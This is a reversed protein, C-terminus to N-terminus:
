ESNQYSVPDELGNILFGMKRMYCPGCKGCHNNNGEYCSWTYKLPAGIEVGIKVIEHKMLNGVPMEITVRKQYNTSYPLVENLKKVFIMENDPYAGAEELNNGLSVVNFGHAEAIGVAISLFILNRAPVWEHAFEAGKEGEGVHMIESNKEILTSHGIVTKFIDTDVTIIRCNLNNAIQKVSESEKKEARHRYQFHLLTIDFGKDLMIKASVTSDLGGSCVVLAKKRSILEDSRWLSVEEIKKETSIEILSYSKVQRVTDSNWLTKEKMLFYEELSSFFVTDLEKDYELFLPKYNCALYLKNPKRRDVIALAYSGIITDRLISQMHTLSNNWIKELLIPLISTDVKSKRNLQYKEVLEKDNAITGNHSVYINKNVSSFPPIDSDQKNRIFETTPEARNTNIVITTNLDIFQNKESLSKSPNGLNKIEIIEGSSKVSLIGYSDRGREESRTIIARLKNEIKSMDDINREKRFIICGNISCGM